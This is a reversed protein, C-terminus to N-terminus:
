VENGDRQRSEEMMEDLLPLQGTGGSPQPTDM